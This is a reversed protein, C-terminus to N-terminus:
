PKGRETGLEEVGVDFNVGGDCRANRVERDNCESRQVDDLPSIRVRLDRM